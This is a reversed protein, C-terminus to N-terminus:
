LLPPVEQALWWKGNRGEARMRALFDAAKNGERFIHSLHVNFGQLVEMVKELFDELYWTNCRKEYIWYVVLWFDLEVDLDVAGQEKVLRIGHLLGLLEAINNTDHGLSMSYAM